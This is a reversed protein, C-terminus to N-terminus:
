IPCTEPILLASKIANSWISYGKKNLHLGDSIYLEPRPRNESSIMQAFVNIFQAKLEGIIYKSLLLNTEIINPIMAEREVSPKLSILALNVEPYKNYILRVLEQCDALVQQPTKGESLDNEGAYLVIKTPNVATFIEDFYHICWAFTSGGFGLNIINLPDLDKKMSVWLRISSSGYFVFLQEQHDLKNVRKRLRKIENSWMAPPESLNNIDTANSVLKDVTKRAEKVYEAYKKQYKNVFSILSETDNEKVHQSLKFPPHIKCYFLNDKIRNDFNVIVIPVISPEIDMNMALKFSGLKFPGPSNETSYSTGEPSIILNYGNKLHEEAERYFISRSLKKSEKTSKESEKTYVNIHGLKNYYNQHGYEQGRGIRVTRIGSDNYKEQLVMASIFHSDLTIQFNNNLTYQSDNILHNYIFINGSEEPLNEWGDIHYNQNKFLKKTAEACQKRVELVNNTTSNVVTSYINELGKIFQLEENDDKLLELSLSAIHRELSTGNALINKLGDYAIEKTNVNNLLHITQHLKSHLPLRSKNNEILHFVAQLNHKGLLGVYRLFAANIQNGILWLLQKYFQKEFKTDLTFLSSLEKYPIFYIATKKDTIASCIDKDGLFSSWGFIFGADRISRQKIEINGEIRKISVEGHILISLGNTFRDQIYLVEHPEYERREALSAIKSLKKESFQDLFPSCRMLSIIESPKAKPTMFFERDDEFPRSRVPQLLEIQKLLASKQQHYLKSAINKLLTNKSDKALYAELQTIPIEFFTAGKSSTVAKYNYRKPNNLGNIGLTSMPESIQCVLIDNEPEEFEIYYDVLGKLIWRFKKVERHINFLVHNKPYEKTKGEPFIAKLQRFHADNELRLMIKTEVLKM